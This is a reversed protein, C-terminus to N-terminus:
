VSCLDNLFGERRDTLHLSNVAVTVLPNHISNATAKHLVHGLMKDVIIHCAPIIIVFHSM